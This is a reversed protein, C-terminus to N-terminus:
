NVGDAVVQNFVYRVARGFKKPGFGDVFADQISAVERGV